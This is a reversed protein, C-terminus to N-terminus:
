RSSISTKSPSSEAGALCAGVRTTGAEAETTGAEGGGGRVGVGEEYVSSGIHGVLQM